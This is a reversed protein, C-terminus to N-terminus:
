QIRGRYVRPLYLGLGDKENGARVRRAEILTSILSVVQDTYGGPGSIKLVAGDSTTRLPFRTDFLGLNEMEREIARKSLSLTDLYVTKIESAPEVHLVAGDFWWTANAQSLAADLLDGVTGESNQVTVKARISDDVQAILGTKRSLDSLVQRVSAENASYPFERHFVSESLGQTPSVLLILVVLVLQHTLKTYSKSLNKLLERDWRNGVSIQWFGM